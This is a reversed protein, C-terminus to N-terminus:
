SQNATKAVAEVPTTALKSDKAAKPKRLDSVVDGLNTTVISITRKLTFENDFAKVSPDWPKEGLERRREAFEMVTEGSWADVLRGEIQFDTAGLQLFYRATGNGRDLRTIVAELVVIKERHSALRLYEPDMVVRDFTKTGLLADKLKQEVYPRFLEAQEGDQVWVGSVEVPKIVITKYADLRADPAVYVLSVKPEYVSTMRDYNTVLEYTKMTAVNHTGCGTMGLGIMLALVGAVVGMMRGKSM